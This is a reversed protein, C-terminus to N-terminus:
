PMFQRNVASEPDFSDVAINQAKATWQWTTALRKKTFAGYGDQESVANYVLSKISNITDTATSADVEPVMEHVIQGSEEPHKWTYEIAKKYAAVFRKTVDPHENIFRDSAIVSTSYFELGADYWPLVQLTKNASKAQQQYIVTDTIWSIVVDANGSLLMPNLAGADAKILKVSNPDVGNVDLLLPLFVNSSTYPSTAIRKGAVDKVSKVGSESLVFFAHPAKSFVSYVASVPVDNQAKAMLLAVLDSLGLDANGTALKSIADTSGRGSAVTVDLDADKFFGKKIGVYVPAKDGGPLWDLQFKVKDIAFATSGNLATFAVAGALCLKGFLSTKLPNNM